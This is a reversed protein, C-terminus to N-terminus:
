GGGFRKWRDVLAEHNPADNANAPLTLKKDQLESYTSAKVAPSLTITLSEPNIGILDLDLLTHIDARLLLGNTVHNSQPGTYPIVHAAELAAVADCGTVACRGGYAALLKNRFNPQGRREVIARIKKEREDKLSGPSFYGTESLQTTTESIENASPGDFSASIPLNKLWDLTDEDGLRLWGSQPFRYQIPKSANLRVLSDVRYAVCYGHDAAKDFYVDDLDVVDFVAQFQKRVEVKNAYEFREVKSVRSQWVIAQETTDYWYLASGEHLEEYPWLRRQWMNFWLMEAMQAADTPLAFGRSTVFGEKEVVKFGLNKLVSNAQGPGEGGSFDDPGWEEGTAISAALGVIAKPPYTHGNYVLAYKTPSGFRDAGHEDFTQIAQTVHQQTISTPLAM